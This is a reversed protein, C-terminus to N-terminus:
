EDGERGKKLLRSAKDVFREAREEVPLGRWRWLDIAERAYELADRRREVDRAFRPPIELAEVAEIHPRLREPLNCRLNEAPTGGTGDQINWNLTGITDRIESIKM